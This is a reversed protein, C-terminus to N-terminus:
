RIRQVRRYARRLQLATQSGDPAMELGRRLWEIATQYQGNREHYTALRLYPVANTPDLQVVWRYAWCMVESLSLKDCDAALRELSAALSSQDDVAAELQKHLLTDALDWEQRVAAKRIKELCVKQDWVSV